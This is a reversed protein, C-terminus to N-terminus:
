PLGPLSPSSAALDDDPHDHRDRTPPLRRVPPMAGGAAPLVFGSDIIQRTMLATALSTGGLRVRDSGMVAAAPLGAAVVSEECPALVEPGRRADALSSRRRDGLKPHVTRGPGTGSYGAAVRGARGGVVVMAEGHAISNLTRDEDVHTGLHNSFYGQRPQAVSGAPPDDRECWAEVALVTAGGNRIAVQWGGFPARACDPRPRTASTALLAMRGNPSQCCREPVIIAACVRGRHDRLTDAEGARVARSVAGDPSTVVVEIERDDPLWFEVFNDSPDDPVAHWRFVCTEAPMAAGSAHMRRQRANGAPVVLQISSGLRQREKQLRWEIAQELLSSGDHPGVNAGYSLNIVVPQGPHACSLIYRIGDYVNARLLGSIERGRRTRPLQVFVIDVDHAHGPEGANASLPNPHGTALDMVHTGHTWRRDSVSAYGSYRYVSEEDLSHQSAFQRIYDDLGLAGPVEWRKDRHTEAGYPFDVPFRWRLPRVGPPLQPQPVDENQDWLALVRTSWAGGNGRRFQHHAFACGYDIFGVLPRPTLSQRLRKGSAGFCRARGSGPTISGTTFGPSVECRLGDRMQLALSRLSGGEIPVGRTRYRGGRLLLTPLVRGGGKPLQTGNFDTLDWWALYPDTHALLRDQLWDGCHIGHARGTWM